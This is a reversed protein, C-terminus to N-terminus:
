SLITIIHNDAMARLVQLGPLDETCPVEQFPLQHPLQENRIPEPSIITNDITQVLHRQQRLNSPACAETPGEGEVSHLAAPVM